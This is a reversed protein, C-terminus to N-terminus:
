QSESEAKPEEENGKRHTEEDDDEMPLQTTYGSDMWDPMKSWPFVGRLRQSRAGILVGLALAAGLFVIAAVVIIAILTGSVAHGEGDVGKTDPASGSSSARSCPKVVPAYKSLPNQCSDGPILRYGQSQVFTNDPGCYLPLDEVKGCKGSIQTPEWGLDCEYDNETCNCNIVSAIKNFDNPNYCAAGAKRRLYVTQRGLVCQPDEGSSSAVMQWTEYDDSNCIREFIRSFDVGFYIIRDDRRSFIVFRSFKASTAYVNTVYVPRDTFNFTTWHIGQDLSYYMETTAVQNHVMVLIGGHDGYEYVTSGKTLEVWSLGGDRSMFTNVDEPELLLTEGFNGTAFIMGVAEEASEFDGYFGSGGVGL